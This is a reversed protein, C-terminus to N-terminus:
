MLDDRRPTFVDIIRCDTRAVGDHEVNSPIVAIDGAKFVQTETGITMEFEGEVLNTLQEHVHHHRPLVSGKKIDWYAYTVNEGHVFRGKFGPMVEKEAVDKINTANM